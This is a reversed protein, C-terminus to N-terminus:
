RLLLSVARNTDSRDGDQTVAAPPRRKNGTAPRCSAPGRDGPGRDVILERGLGAQELSETVRKGLRTVHTVDRPSEHGMIRDLRDPLEDGPTPAEPIRVAM